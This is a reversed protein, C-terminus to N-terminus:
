QEAQASKIRLFEPLTLGIGGAFGVHLFDRRSQKFSM